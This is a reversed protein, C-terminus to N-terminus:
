TPPPKSKLDAEAYYQAADNLMATFQGVAFVADGCARLLARQGDVIEKTKGPNPDQFYEGTTYGGGQNFHYQQNAPKVMDDPNSVLFVWKEESVVFDKFTEFETVQTKGESILKTEADRISSTAVSFAADPPRVANGPTDDDPTDKAIIFASGTVDNATGPAVITLEPLRIDPPPDAM